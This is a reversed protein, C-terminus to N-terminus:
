LPTLFNLSTEHSTSQELLSDPPSPRLFSLSNLCANFSFQPKTCSGFASQTFIKRLWYSHPLLIIWFTWRFLESDDIQFPTWWDQLTNIFLIRQLYSIPFINLKPFITPKTLTTKQFLNNDSLDRQYPQANQLQTSPNQHSNSSESKIRNRGCEIWWSIRFVM